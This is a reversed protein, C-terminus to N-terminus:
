ATATKSSTDAAISTSDINPFNYTRYMIRKEPAM